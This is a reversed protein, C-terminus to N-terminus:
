QWEMENKPQELGAVIRLAQAIDQATYAAIQEGDRNYRGVCLYSDQATPALADEGTLMWYGADMMTKLGVVVVPKYLAECGGGTGILEWGEVELPTYNL